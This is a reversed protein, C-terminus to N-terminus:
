QWFAENGWSSYVQGFPPIGHPLNSGPAPTFQRLLGDILVASSSQSSGSLSKGLAFGASDSQEGAATDATADSPGQTAGGAPATNGSPAQVAGSTYSNGLVDPARNVLIIGVIGAINTASLVYNGADAGQLALGGVTVTKGTGVFKDDYSGLGPLTLTVDDGPVAGQLAFNSADPTAITNGDFIKQVVGTLSVSVTAPDIVGIAASIQSSALLYNGADSGLLALGSATVTKGSGVNKDSYSGTAPNNLTVSDGAVVGTLAYNGGTLSATATGDYTKHVSGTLSATLTAPDIIGIAASLASKALVYNGADPGALSLGSVSVLKGTGVNKDSYSASAPSGASVSDGALIGSLKYNAATTTAAATGDYTKRVTGTLSATLTAPDIIGIAGSAIPSALLYNGADAGSLVLGGVTVTKATGANKNNYNGTAPHNLTVSDGAVVGTLAYNGATLSATTTGDYTKRATGTLSATLAAPDIIGIAASLNANALIYNGADPGLLSLGSVSVLKGTGVNKDNYTASSAAGASVQDNFLIGSLQYNAAAPAALATGDYSKRITGTLSATLTAPDIRLTGSVFQFGYNFDSVLTGPGVTIAYNGVASSLTATTSLTPAGSVGATGDGPLAGSITATLAPNASGYIKSQGDATVTLVPALAYVFRNGTSSVPAYSNTAFNFSRNYFPSASLGGPTNNGPANLFVLWRGGGTVQLAGGQNVFNGAAAIVLADGAGNATILATSNLSVNTGSTLQVTGGTTATTLIGGNGIQAYAHIATGGALTIAGQAAVSINGFLMGATEPGGHGIQAFATGTTNSGTLTLAGSLQVVIDGSTNVPPAHLGHYGLQAYNNTGVLNLNQAAITTTGTRSGLAVGGSAGAGGILVSGGNQGYAGPTSLIASASTVGDWGAAAFIAGSGANQVSANVTLNHGALFTLSNASSYTIAANVTIDNSATVSVNTSALNSVITAATPTDIAVNVPDLLWAGSAGASASTDVHTSDAIDLSDGSTEVQGGASVGKASLSAAVHTAGSSIIKITGGAGTQVADAAIVAKGASVSQTAEVSMTGGGAQGSVQLNAGDAIAVQEGRVSVAGGSEGTKQGSAEVTGAIAVNGDGADLVVEGNQVSVSNAQVIGTTNIVHDVVDRAARATMLIQGGDATITGSNSVLSTVPKGDADKPTETVPAAIQYRILNDGDFDVSFTKAGGLVVHGLKAAIVGDNVVHSASLVVSGGTAAKISGHNVVQANPNDSGTGFSYRGSLFDGDQIDATTALLGGVDIRSGQGFVVGNRNILWVQGNALLNGDIASLGNGTVRNLTIASSGPQQFTVSGGAGVSFNQWNIIAKQSQQTILTGAPGSQSISAAGATVTAGSPLLPDAHAVSAVLALGGALMAQQRSFAQRPATRRKM